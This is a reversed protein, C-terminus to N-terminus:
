PPPSAAPATAPLPNAKQQYGEPIEFLSPNKAEVHIGTLTTELVARTGTPDIERVLLPVGHLSEISAWWPSM